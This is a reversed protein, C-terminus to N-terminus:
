FSAPPTLTAHNVKLPPNTTAERVQVFHAYAMNLRDDIKDPVSGYTARLQTMKDLFSFHLNARQYFVNDDECAQVVVNGLWQCVAHHRTRPPMAALLAREDATILGKREFGALAEDTTLPAHTKVVSAYFTICFLRKYRAITDIVIQAKPLVLGNEDRKAHTSVLISVDNLRLCLSSHHTILSSHPSTHSSQAPDPCSRM